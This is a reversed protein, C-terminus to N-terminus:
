MAPSYWTTARLVSSVFIEVSAKRLDWGIRLRRSCLKRVLLLAHEWSKPKQRRPIDEMPLCFLKSKPFSCPLRAEQFDAFINSTQFTHSWCHMWALMASFM